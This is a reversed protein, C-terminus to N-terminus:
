LVWSNYEWYLVTQIALMSISKSGLFLTIFLHHHVSGRVVTCQAESLLASYQAESLLASYQAESLLASLRQCCHVSGRVVTYQAESLLASLRQCTCQAESLLASLRQCCHVSGRVVTCQAESLLASLRQRCHVSGRVVTYQAESSLTSLRVSLRQCCHVSSLNYHLQVKNSGCRAFIYRQPNEVLYM